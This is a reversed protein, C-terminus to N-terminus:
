IIYPKLVWDTKNRYTFIIPEKDVFWIVITNKGHNYCGRVSNKSIPFIETFAEYVSM